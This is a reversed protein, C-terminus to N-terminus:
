YIIIIINQLHIQFKESFRSDKNRQKIAEDLHSVVQLFAACHKDKLPEESGVHSAIV